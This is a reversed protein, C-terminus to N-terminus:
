KRRNMRRGIAGLGVLGSGLLALSIPEPTELVTSGTTPLNGGTDLRGTAFTYSAPDALGLVPNSISTMTFEMTGWSGDNYVPGTLGTLDPLYMDLYYAGSVDGFAIDNPGFYAGTINNVSSDYIITSFPNSNGVGANTAASTFNYSTIPSPNSTDAYYAAVLSSDYVFNGSLHGGDAPPGGEFWPTAVGTIPDFTYGSNFWDGWDISLNWVTQAAFAGSAALLATGGVIIAGFLRKM